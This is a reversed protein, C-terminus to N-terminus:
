VSRVNGFAALMADIGRTGFAAGTGGIISQLSGLDPYNDEKREIIGLKTQQMQDATRNLASQREREIGFQMTPAVTTNGMGLGILRQQIDAGRQNYASSVDALRQDTTQDAIGLLEQYRAENGERAQGYAENYKELMLGFGEGLRGVAEKDYKAQDRMQSYQFSAMKNQLAAAKAAARETASQQYQSMMQDIVGGGGAGQATRGGLSPPNYPPLSPINLGASTGSSGGFMGVPDFSGRDSGYSIKPLNGGYSLSPGQYSPSPPSYGVPAGLAPGQYGTPSSYLGPNDYGSASSMGGAGGLSYNLNSSNKPPSYSGGGGSGGPLVIVM